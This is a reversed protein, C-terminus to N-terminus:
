VPARNALSRFSCTSNRERIFFITRTAITAATAMRNTLCLFYISFSLSRINPQIKTQCTSGVPSRTQSFEKEILRRRRFKLFLCGADFTPFQLLLFSFSITYLNKIQCLSVVNCEVLSTKMQEGQAKTPHRGLSWEFSLPM